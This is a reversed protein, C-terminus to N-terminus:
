KNLWVGEFKHAATVVFARTLPFNEVYPQTAFVTTLEAFPVFAAWDLMKRQLDRIMDRRRAFDLTQEQDTLLKDLEANSHKGYNTTGGTSVYTVIQDAPDDMTQGGGTTAIDFDNRQLAQVRDATNAIVRLTSKIGLKSLVTSLVEAYDSQQPVAIIVLNLSAPDVGAEQFLKKAEDLDAPDQANNKIRFGPTSLFEQNTLTFRGGFSEPVLWTPPYILGGGRVVTALTNRDLGVSIAKRVKQNALAGRSSFYMVNMSASNGIKVNPISKRAEEKQEPLMDSSYGCTCELRGTRFAAFALAQDVIFQYMVGDLYPMPRGAADKKWYTTNKQLETSVNNQFNKYKFAGTGVPNAKWAGAVDPSHAPYMLMFPTSLTNFLSASPATLLVRFTYDDPADFSQIVRLRPVMAVAQPDSGKAARNFTYVADKATFQTGDHWKVDRRLTYTITKGDSSINYSQALDNRITSGDVPDVDTLNNLMNQLIIASFQGTTSLTDWSNAFTGSVRLNFIGGTKVPRPTATPTPAPTPTPGPTATPGQTAPATTATAAPPRTPAPTPTPEEDDGGCAALIMVVVLSLSLALWSRQTIRQLM